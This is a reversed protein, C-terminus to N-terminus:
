RWNQASTKLSSFMQESRKSAFAQSNTYFLIHTLAHITQQFKMRSSQKECKVCSNYEALMNCECIIIIITYVSIYLHSVSHTVALALAPPNYLFSVTRQFTYCVNPPSM